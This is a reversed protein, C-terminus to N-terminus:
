KELERAQALRENMVMVISALPMKSNGKKGIYALKAFYLSTAECFCPNTTRIKVNAKEYLIGRASSLTACALAISFDTYFCCCNFVEQALGSAYALFLFL